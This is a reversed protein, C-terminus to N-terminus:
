QHVGIEEAKWHLNMDAVRCLADLGKMELQCWMRSGEQEMAELKKPQAAASDERELM